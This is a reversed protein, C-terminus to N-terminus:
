IKTCDVECRVDHIEGSPMIMKQMAAPLATNIRIDLQDFDIISISSVIVATTM